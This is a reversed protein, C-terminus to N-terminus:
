TISRSEPQYYNLGCLNRVLTISPTIFLQRGRMAVVQKRWFVYWEQVVLVEVQNYVVDMGKYPFHGIGNVNDYYGASYKTPHGPYHQASKRAVYLPIDNLHGGIVARYPLPNGSTSDHSIWSINCDSSVTLFETQTENLEIDEGEWSCYMVRRKSSMKGPIENNGLRGRVIILLQSSDNAKPFSIFRHVGSAYHEVWKLCPPKMALFRTVFEANQELSICPRQSLLCYGGLINFNIAQCSLDRMCLLMCHHQHGTRNVYVETDTICRQGVQPSHTHQQRCVPKTVNSADVNLAILCVSIYPILIRSACLMASLTRESVIITIRLRNVPLIVSEVLPFSFFRFSVDSFLPWLNWILMNINLITGKWPWVDYKVMYYLLSQM